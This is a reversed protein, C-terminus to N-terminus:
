NNNLNNQHKQSREHEAKGDLRLTKNCVECTYTQRKYEQIKEKNELRYKKDKEKIKEINEKRYQKHYEQIQEKNDKYYKKDKEKIKEINEQRYQTKYEQIQEKNQFYYQKTREKIEGRITKIINKKIEDLL